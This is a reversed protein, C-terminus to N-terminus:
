RMPCAAVGIRWNCGKRTDDVTNTSLIMKNHSPFLCIKCGCKNQYQQEMSSQVLNNDIIEYYGNYMLNDIIFRVTMVNFVGRDSNLDTKLGRNKNM